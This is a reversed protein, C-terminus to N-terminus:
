PRAVVGDSTVIANDLALPDDVQAGPWLVCRTLRAGHGIRAGPGIVAEHLVAGQDVHAGPAVLTAHPGAAIGPWRVEGRALALNAALYHALSVGVDYWPAEDTVSAVVDGRELWRLYAHEILDGQQPLDRHARASLVQVGTFM